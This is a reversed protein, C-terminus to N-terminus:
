RKAVAKDAPTKLKIKFLLPWNKGTVYLTNEFPQHAIGNLVDRKVSVDAPVMGEMNMVGVVKGTGPDIKVIKTSEFINAYVFGDVYELENLNRVPGTHDYVDVEGAKEMETNYFYLKSSGDSMILTDDHHTMGWGQTYYSFTKDLKFDMNYRFCIGSQWTLQYIKDNVITIGEGFYKLDLAIEKLTAGTKLDIKLLKSLGNQGTGEYLEGKYFELGETFSTKQHPFSSLVTYGIEAPILDSLLEVRLTDAFNENKETNGKVILQHWGTKQEKTGILVTDQMGELSNIKEGDFLVELRTAKEVFALQISDGIAYRTTVLHSTAVNEQVAATQGDKNKDSCGLFVAGLITLLIGITKSTFIYRFM